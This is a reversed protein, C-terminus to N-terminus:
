IHFFTEQQKLAKRGESEMWSELCREPHIKMADDHALRFVEKSVGPPQEAEPKVEGPKYGWCRMISYTELEYQRRWWLWFGASRELKRMQDNDKSGTYRELYELGAEYQMMGYEEATIGLNYRM